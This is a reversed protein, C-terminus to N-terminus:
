SQIFQTAHCKNNKVCNWQYYSSRSEKNFLFCFLVNEHFLFKKDPFLSPSLQIICEHKIGDVKTRFLVHCSKVLKSLGTDTTKRLDLGWNWLLLHIQKVGDSGGTNRYRTQEEAGTCVTRRHDEQASLGGTIRRHLCDVSLCFSFKNKREKNGRKTKRADWPELSSRLVLLHSPLCAKGSLVQEIM